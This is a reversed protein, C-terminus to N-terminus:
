PRRLSTRPTTLKLLYDLSHPTLNPVVRGIRNNNFNYDNFANYVSPTRVTSLESATTAKQAEFKIAQRSNTTIPNFSRLAVTSSTTPKDVAKAIVVTSRDSFQIPKYNIPAQTFGKLYFDFVNFSPKLTVAKPKTDPTKNSDIRATLPKQSSRRTTTEPRTNILAKKSTTSPNNLNIATSKSLPRGGITNQIGGSLKVERDFIRAPTTTKVSSSARTTRKTTTARGLNKEQAKIENNNSSGKQNSFYFDFLNFKATTQSKESIKQTTSKQTTTL